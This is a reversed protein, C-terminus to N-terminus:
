CEIEARVDSMTPTMRQAPNGFTSYLKGRLAGNELRMPVAGSHRGFRGASMLLEHDARNPNDEAVDPRARWAAARSSTSCSWCASPAVM